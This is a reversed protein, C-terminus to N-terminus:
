RGAGRRRRWRGLGLLVALALAAAVVGATWGRGAGSTDSVRTVHLDGAAAQSPAGAGTAAGTVGAAGAAAPASGSAAPAPADQATATRPAAAPTTAKPAPGAKPPASTAGAAFTVPVRVDQSRDSARTHDARTVVACRRVTCDVDGITPTVKVTVSFSGGPGYPKPLGEAYAPPNSSIWQSAGLSGTTDAGGGCPTAAVGPGNDVCYAVYIGKDVDYGRGSVSVTAGSRSLGTSPTVTLKQGGSGTTTGAHAPAPTAVVAAATLLVTTLITRRRARM